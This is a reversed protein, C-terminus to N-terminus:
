LGAVVAWVVIASCVSTWYGYRQYTVEAAHRQQALPLSGDIQPDSANRVALWAPATPGLEQCVMGLVADGMEVASGLGQLHYTNTTDDFAFFDTTVVMPGLDGGDTHVVRPTRDAAPLQDANVPLLATEALAFRSVPPAAACEYAGAAFPAQRFEGTCDFRVRRAVVVDGLALDPGIAGATGTTVVLRPTAEALMQRWLDRVPLDPGDQSMHLESKACVVDLQGVSTVAYSALRKAARAPAGARIRPLFWDWRHAYPYWDRHQHGPTLVDALAEAEAVTWTVVLVDCRPLPDAPQHNPVFPRPSPALGRPWPIPNLPRPARPEPLLWPSAPSRPDFALVRRALERDIV